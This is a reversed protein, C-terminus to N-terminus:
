FNPDELDHYYIGNHIDNFLVEKQPIITTVQNGEASDYIVCYKKKAKSLYLINAICRDDFWVTGFGPLTLETRIISTGLNYHVYVFRGSANHIYKVIEKNMVMNVTLQIDLLM